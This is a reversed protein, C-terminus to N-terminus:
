RVRPAERAGEDRLHFQSFALSCALAWAAGITWGGLVDSPWHVGLYVRSVGICLTLLIAVVLVYVRVAPEPAARAVLAGLTLYVIASDTAHGSPFSESYVEVLHPVVDPRQRDFVLKLLKAFIAGGGTAILVFLATWPRRVLLLFGLVVATVLFLGTPGGFATVDTMASTLWSPGIPTGPDGAARLGLLISRDFAMTDGELVESAIKFFGFGAAAILVLAILLERDMAFLGSWLKALRNKIM